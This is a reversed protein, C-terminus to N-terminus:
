RQHRRRRGGILALALLVAPHMAGGGGGPASGLTVERADTRGADDTVQLRVTVQGSSPVAVTATPGATGGVFAPNGSVGTWAYSSITRNRAAASSSGDLAVNQGAGSGAPKVIRALPRLAESVAGPADAIGAGCTSTTCNCQGTASDLSPCTPLGAQPAPFPRAGSQIREIFEAPTLESNVAHMLAATASVIPASFSTGINSNENTDDTYTSAAPVTPGANTATVLSYECLLPTSPCNGAPASVSVEPGLSSYGVKTGVHRLGGVALVGPCNAPSEVPGSDNGASAVVLVGAATIEAIANTYVSACSGSGGLSLNLIRAPNPNAPVGAVPLGAAWRMGAVIDSDYGGCKGLVRVPLVNGTWTGGAVGTANGTAASTMAAVRTGHWSSPEAFVLSCDAFASSQLDASSMWDGPDSADSDWGDGDNATAFSTPSEESVFDYGPLVRGALDPHDFRIGTDIVAIVTDASGTTTDWAAEFNTASPEVGQLYWQTAYLPDNPVARAYRRRDVEAFEVAPDARLAALASALPEGSLTQGLGLVVTGPGLERAGRVGLGAQEALRRARDRQSPGTRQDAGQGQSTVRAGSPGALEAATADPRLQIILRSAAAPEETSQAAAPPPVVPLLLAATLASAAAAAVSKIRM